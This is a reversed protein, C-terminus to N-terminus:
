SKAPVFAAADRDLIADARVTQGRLRFERDLATELSQSLGIAQQTDHRAGSALMLDADMEGVEAMRDDAVFKIAAVLPKIQVERHAALGLLLALPQDQRILRKM